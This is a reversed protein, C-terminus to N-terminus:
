ARRPERQGDQAVAIGREHQRQHRQRGDDADAEVDQDPEGALDGDAVDAEIGDAGVDDADQGQLAHAEPQRQGGGADDGAHDARQERHRRMRTEPGYRAIIVMAKAKM